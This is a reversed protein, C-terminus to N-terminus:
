RILRIQTEAGCVKSNRLKELIIIEQTIPSPTLMMLRFGVLGGRGAPHGHRSAARCNPAVGFWGGGRLVRASGYVPGQPNKAPSIKYYESDYWDSCWEWVNGAMDMCGYTSKGSPYTGVPSTRGLGSEKSNCKNKDFHNGWPYVFGGTGRAAKEWQAETPLKFILETKRSLWVCYAAADDYSVHIVPRNGRGWGKDDPKEKGIEDCYQDYQAFTVEYKGIWYDDLDVEHQPREDNDGDDAGMIFKGPPIYIMTLDYVKYFTEWYDNENKNVDWGKSNLFRIFEPVKDVQPLKEERECTGGRKKYDSEIVRILEEINHESDISITQLDELEELGGGHDIQLPIIFRIDPRFQKQRECAEYIEKHVYGEVKNKLSKSQLVLFYDIKKKIVKQISDDWRDGGRLNEKDLWPDLGAAKLQGHLARAIAKDESAHCLFVKPMKKTNSSIKSTM